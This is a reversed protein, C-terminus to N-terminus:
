LHSAPTPAPQALAEAKRKKQHHHGIETLGSFLNTVGILFIVMRLIPKGGILNTLNEIRPVLGFSESYAYRTLPITFGALLIVSAFCLISCYNHWACGHNSGACKKCNGDKRMEEHLVRISTPLIVASFLMAITKGMMTLTWFIGIWLCDGWYDKVDEGIVTVEGSKAVMENARALPNKASIIQKMDDTTLKTIGSQELTNLAYAIAITPDALSM